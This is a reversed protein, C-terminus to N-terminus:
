PLHSWAGIEQNDHDSFTMLFDFGSFESRNDPEFWYDYSSINFPAVSIDEIGHNRHEYGRNASIFIKYDGNGHNDAINKGVKTMQEKAMPTHSFVTIPEASSKLEV